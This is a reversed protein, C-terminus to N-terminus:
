GYLEARDIQGLQKSNHNFKVQIPVLGACKM